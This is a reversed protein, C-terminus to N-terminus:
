TESLLRWWWACVLIWPPKLPRRLIFSGPDAVCTTGSMIMEAFSALSGWYAEESNMSEELPYLRTSWRRKVAMDDLLGKNLYHTPHNHGDILGPIVLMGTADIMEVNSFAQELEDSKGVMAIAATKWVFRVTLSLGGTLM